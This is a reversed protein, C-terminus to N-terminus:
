AAFLQAVPVHFGPLVDDGALEDAERFERVDTSSRYVYGALRPSPEARIM